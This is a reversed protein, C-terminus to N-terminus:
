RRSALDPRAAGPGARPKAGRLAADVLRAAAVSPPLRGATVEAEAEAAVPLSRVAAMVRDTVDAWLWDQAQLGRLRQLDGSSALAARRASAM